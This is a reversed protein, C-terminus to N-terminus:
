AARSSALANYLTQRSVGLDRAVKAKPIGAEVREVATAVQEASLSPKRGTYKGAAKAIAIGERQRERITEREWESISAFIGLLLKSMPDGQGNFTLNEKIFHVTVGRDTLDEVLALMDRMNRALRDLSACRITDGARVYALMEALAPRDTNKGSVKDTFIREVGALAELQRAENQEATSVRAYGVTQGIM